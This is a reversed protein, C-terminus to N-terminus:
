STLHVACMCLSVPSPSPTHVLPCLRTYWVLIHSFLYSLTSKSCYHCHIFSAFTNLTIIFFNTTYLTSSSWTHSYKLRLYSTCCSVTHPVTFQGPRFLPFVLNTHSIHSLFLSICKLYKLMARTCLKCWCMTWGLGLAVSYVCNCLAYVLERCKPVSVNIQIKASIYIHWLLLDRLGM